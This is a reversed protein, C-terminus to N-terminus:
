SGEQRRLMKALSSIGILGSGIFAVGALLVAYLPGGTDVLRQVPPEGSYTRNSELSGSAPQPARLAVTPSTASPEAGAQAQGTAETSQDPSLGKAQAKETTEETSINASAQDQRSADGSANAAPVIDGTEAADETGAWGSETGAPDPGPEDGPHHETRQADSDDQGVGDESRDGDELRGAKAVESVNEGGTPGDADGERPQVSSEDAVFTEPQDSAPAKAPQEGQSPQAAADGELGEVVRALGLREDDLDSALGATDLSTDSSGNGPGEVDPDRNSEIAEKSERNNHVSEGAGEGAPAGLCTFNSEWEDRSIHYTLFCTEEYRSIPGSGWSPDKCMIRDKGPSNRGGERTCVFNEAVVDFQRDPPRAGCWPTRCPIDAPPSELAPSSGPTSAPPRVPPRVPPTGPPGGYQDTYTDTQQDHDHYTGAKETAKAAATAAGSIAADDDPGLDDATGVPGSGVQGSRPQSCGVAAGVAAEYQDCGAGEATRPDAGGTGGAFVLAVLVVTLCRVCRTM